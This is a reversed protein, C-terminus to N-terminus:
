FYILNIILDNFDEILVIYINFDNFLDHLFVVIIFTMKFHFCFYQFPFIGGNLESLNAIFKFFDFGGILGITKISKDVFRCVGSCKKITTQVHGLSINKGLLVWCCTQAM